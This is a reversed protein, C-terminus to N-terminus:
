LLASVRETVTKHHSRQDKSGLIFPNEPSMTSIQIDLKTIRAADIKLIDYPYVFVCVYVCVTNFVKSERSADAHM